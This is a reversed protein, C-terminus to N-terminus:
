RLTVEGEMYYTLVNSISGGPCTGLLIMGFAYLQELKFAHALGFTIAPFAVFQVLLGTIVGVPRLAHHKLVSVEVVCGLGLMILSVGVILFINFGQRVTADLETDRDRSYETTTTFNTLNNIFTTANVDAMDSRARQHFYDSFFFFFFFFFFVDFHIKSVQNKM